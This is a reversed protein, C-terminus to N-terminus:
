NQPFVIRSLYISSLPVHWIKGNQIREDQQLDKKMKRLVLNNMHSSDFFDDSIYHLIHAPDIPIHIYSM